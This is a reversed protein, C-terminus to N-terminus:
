KMKTSKRSNAVRLFKKLYKQTILERAPQFGFEEALGDTIDTRKFSPIYNNGGLYTLNLDRLTNIINSCTYKEKLHKKELLRYVLLSLFCTLLHGKVSEEGTVYMPRTKFESKMIEFNEEIEWRRRNADIILKLDNDELDTTVAYFGDYRSEENVVSEDISYYSESAVEGEPTTKIKSIYYRPDRPNNTDIKGPNDKILKRARELKKERIYKQYKAYKKSYTVILHEELVYKKNNLSTKKETKEWRDKYFVLDKTAYTKGDIIVTDDLKSIDYEGPHNILKWGTTELAWSKLTKKLKRVPQTVIYAGNHKMDNYVKNDFSNLGADACVIFKSLNFDRAIEEELERMSFQENKNGDFVIDAIPIGDADTFLGYQVIPNPRNEKSKGYKCIGEEDEIEFYFNTCDYYLISNNRSYRERSSKYLESEIYYREKSLVSLSRYVDHLEYKPPEIFHHADDYSSRKSGPYVIRTAVLDCLIDCLDFRFQYRSSIDDCIDSIGLSKLISKPYLYGINFLRETDKEILRAPSLNVSITTAADRDAQRLNKLYEDLCKLADEDTDAEFRKKINDINGLKEYVFTSRKKTSPDTFDDIIYYNCSNKTVTKKIRKAM